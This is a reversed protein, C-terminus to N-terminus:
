SMTCACSQMLALATPSQMRVMWWRSSNVVGIRASHWSFAITSGYARIQTDAATAASTRAPQPNSGVTIGLPTSAWRNM